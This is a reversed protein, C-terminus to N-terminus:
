RNVQYHVPYSVSETVKQNPLQLVKYLEGWILM